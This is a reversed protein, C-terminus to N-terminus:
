GQGSPARELTVGAAELQHVYRAPDRRVAPLCGPCCVYLRRGDYDVHLARNIRAGMVPCATQVGPPVGEGRVQQESPEPRGNSSSKQCAPCCSIVSLMVALALALELAVGLVLVKFRM